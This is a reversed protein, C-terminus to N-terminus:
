SPNPVENGHSKLSGREADTLRAVWGPREREAWGRSVTGGTMSTLLEPERLAHRIHGVVLVFLGLYAWDHVFTAGTRWEDAFPQNWHMLAGTLLQMVFLGAFVCAALKQGGNFKGAPTTRSRRRLWRRDSESWRGLEVADARLGSGLRGLMLGVLLPVLLLLGSWLHVRALLARRGIVASLQGVYLITGTALLTVTLVTTTWHVIRTARDFRPIV